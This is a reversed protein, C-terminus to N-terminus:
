AVVRRLVCEMVGATFGHALAAQWTSTTRRYTERGVALALGETLLHRAVPYPRTDEHISTM